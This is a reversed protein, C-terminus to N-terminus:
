HRYMFIYKLIAHPSAMVRPDHLNANEGFIPFLKTDPTKKKLIDNERYYKM